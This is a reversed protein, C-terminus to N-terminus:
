FLKKKERCKKGCSVAALHFLQTKSSRIKQCRSVSGSKSEKEGESLRKDLKKADEIISLTAM